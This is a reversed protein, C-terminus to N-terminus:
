SILAEKKEKSVQEDTCVGQNKYSITQFFFDQWRVEISWM